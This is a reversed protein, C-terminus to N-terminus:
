NDGCSHHARQLVVEDRLGATDALRRSPNRNGCVVAATTRLLLAGAAGTTVSAPAVGPFSSVEPVL